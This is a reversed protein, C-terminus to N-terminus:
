TLSKGGKQLNHTLEAKRQLVESATPADKGLATFLKKLRKAYSSTMLSSSTFAIEGDKIFIDPTKSNLNSALMSTVTDKIAELKDRDAKRGGREDELQGKLSDREEAMAKLDAKRGEREDELQDKLAEREETMAKLDAQAQRGEALKKRVEDPLSRVAKQYQAKEGEAEKKAKQASRWAANVADERSDLVKEKAEAQEQRYDFSYRQRAVDESAELVHAFATALEQQRKLAQAQRANLKVAKGEKLASIVPNLINNNERVDRFLRPQDKLKDINIYERKSDKLTDLLIGGEYWRLSKQLHKDLEDHLHSFTQRNLVRKASIQREEDVPIFGYHVHPSTEDMHVCAYIENDKTGFKQHLYKYTEEFFAAQQHAPFDKYRDPLTVIVAGLGVADPRVKRRQVELLAAWKRRYDEGVEYGKHYDDQWSHGESLDYNLHSRKPDINENGYKSRDGRNREMHALLNGGVQSHKYKTIHAM